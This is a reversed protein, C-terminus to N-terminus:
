KVIMKKGNEIVVGKYSENVRQGALNYRVGKKANDVTINNIGSADNLVTVVARVYRVQTAKTDNNLRSITFTVDSVGTKADDCNWLPSVKPNVATGQETIKGSSASIEGWDTSNTGVLRISVIKKTESSFTMKNGAVNNKDGGFLKVYAKDLVKPNNKKDSPYFTVNPAASGTSKDFVIKVGGQELPTSLYVVDKNTGQKEFDKYYDYFEITIKETKAAKATQANVAGAVMMLAAVFAYRLTKIM